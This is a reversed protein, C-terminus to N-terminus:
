ELSDSSGGLNKKIEIKEKQEIKHTLLSPSANLVAGFNNIKFTQNSDKIHVKIPNVM